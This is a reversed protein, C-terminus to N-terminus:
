CFSTHTPYPNSTILINQVDLGHCARMIVEHMCASLISAPHKCSSSPTRRCADCKIALSHSLWGCRVVSDQLVAITIPAQRMDYSAHLITNKTAPAIPGGIPESASPSHIRMPRSTRARLGHILNHTSSTVIAVEHASSHLATPALRRIPKSTM